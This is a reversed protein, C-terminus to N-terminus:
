GMRVTFVHGGVVVNDVVQGYAYVAHLLIPHLHGAGLEIFQGAGGAAAEDIHEGLAFAGVLGDCRRCGNSLYSEGATKSWRVRIPGVSDPLGNTIVQSAVALNTGHGATVFGATGRPKIGVVAVTRARCWFCPVSLGLITVWVGDNPGASQIPELPLYQVLAHLNADRGPQLCWKKAARDWWAGAERADDRNRYPVNLYLPTSTM